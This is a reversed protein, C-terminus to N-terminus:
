GHLFFRGKRDGEVTGTILKEFMAVHQKAPCERSQLIAPLGPNVAAVLRIADDALDIQRAPITLFLDMAGEQIGSITNYSSIFVRICLAESLSLSMCVGPLIMFPSAMVVGTMPRMIIPLRISRFPLSNGARSSLMVRVVWILRPCSHISC